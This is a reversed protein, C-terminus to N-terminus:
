EAVSNPAGSKRAEDQMADLKAKAADLGKQKDAIQQQYKAGEAQFGNPNQVRQQPNNNFNTAKLNYERKLVDLERTLLSLKSKQEDLKTKLTALAQDREAATQGPKLGDKNKDNKDKDKDAALGDKSPDHDKDQNATPDPAQGVVSVSGSPLNDNDYVVKASTKAPNQTKKVARAYNGLSVQSQAGAVTSVAVTTLIVALWFAALPFYSMRKM